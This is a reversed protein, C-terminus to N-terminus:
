YNAMTTAVDSPDNYSFSVTSLLGGTILATILVRM